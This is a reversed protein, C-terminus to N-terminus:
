ASPTKKRNLQAQAREVMAKHGLLAGAHTASHLLYQNHVDRLTPIGVIITEFWEPESATGQNEGLFITSVFRGGELSTRAVQRNDLQQMWKAWAGEDTAPVIETGLLICRLPQM